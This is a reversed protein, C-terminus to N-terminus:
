PKGGNLAKVIVSVRHILIAKEEAYVEVCGEHDSLPDSKDNKVYDVQGVWMDQDDELAYPSYTAGEVYM